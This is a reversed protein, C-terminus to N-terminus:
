QTPPRYLRAGPEPAAATSGPRSSLLRKGPPASVPAPAADKSVKTFGTPSSGTVRPTSPAASSTSSTSTSATLEVQRGELAVLVKGSEIREVTWDELVDGVQVRTRAKSQNNILVAAPPRSPARIVGAVRYDPPVSAQEVPAPAVYVSRSPHFVVRAGVEATEVEAPVDFRREVLRLPQAPVALLASQQSGQWLLVGLSTSLAVLSLVLFSTVLPIRRRRINATM